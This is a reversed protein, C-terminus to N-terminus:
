SLVSLYCCRNESDIWAYCYLEGPIIEIELYNQGELKVAGIATGRIKISSGAIFEVEKGMSVEDFFLENASIKGKEIQVLRDIGMVIIERRTRFLTGWNLVEHFNIRKLKDLRWSVPAFYYLEGNGEALKKIKM